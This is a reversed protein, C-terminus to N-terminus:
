RSGVRDDLRVIPSATLRVPRRRPVRHGSPRDSIRSGPLEFSLTTGAGDSTVELTTGHLRLVRVVVALGLGMGRTSRTHIEGGRAFSQGLREVLEAPMGPGDDSISITVNMGDVPAAILAITTGAPTHKVANDLLCDLARELLVRDAHVVLRRDAQCIVVDDKGSARKAREAAADFVDMVHVPRVDLDFRDSDLQRFHTLLEVSDQLAMAHHRIRRVLERRTAEDLDEWRGDLLESAGGVITLPTRLEHSTTAIFDEKLEALRRMREVVHQHTSYRHVTDLARAAHAALLEFAEIEEDTFSRSRRTGAVLVATVPGGGTSLPAAAVAQYGAAQLGEDADPFSGYDEVTVTRGEVAARGVLGATLPRAVPRYGEPMGVQDTCRHTGGAPDVVYLAATEVGLGAAAGLLRQVVADRDLGAMDSTAVALTALLQARRESERQTELRREARLRLERALLFTLLAVAGVVLAVLAVHGAPARSGSARVAVTFSTATTALLGVQLVPPYLAMFYSVPLAYLFAFPSSAGGTVAVVVGILVLDVLSWVALLWLGHRAFLLPRFRVLLQLGATAAAAAACAALIVGRAGESPGDILGIAAIGAVALWTAGVGWRLPQRLSTFAKHDWGM